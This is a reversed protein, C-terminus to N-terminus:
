LYGGDSGRLDSINERGKFLEVYSRLCQSHTFLSLCKLTAM